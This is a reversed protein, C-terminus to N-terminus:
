DLHDLDKPFMIVIPRSDEVKEKPAPYVDFIRKIEKTAELQTSADESKNWRESRTNWRVTKAERLEILKKAQSFGDCGLARRADAVQVRVKRALLNCNSKATAKSYGAALASRYANGPSSGPGGNRYLEEFLAERPNAERPTDASQDNGSAASLESPEKPRQNKQSERKSM